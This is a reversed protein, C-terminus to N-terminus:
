EKDWTELMRLYDQLNKKPAGDPAMVVDGDAEGSDLKQILQGVSEEAPDPKKVIQRRM